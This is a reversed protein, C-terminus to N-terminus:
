KQEKLKMAVTQKIKNKLAQGGVEGELVMTQTLSTELVKGAQNDFYASGKAEQEKIQFAVPANEMAKLTMTPALGIKQVTKGERTEPGEYTNKNTVVMTGVQPMPIEMATNWSAGKRIAGEPLMLGGQSMMQQLRKESFMEKMQEAGPSAQLAERFKDSIKFDSTQGRPDMTMMFKAGVLARFVPMVLKGIPDEPDKTNQTDFESKGNPGGMTMRIRTVTQTIRAKGDKDVTGVDWTLDMVQGTEMPVQQGGVTFEMAMKQDTAYDLKQGEQFKYRLTVEEQGRVPSAALGVCVALCAFVHRGVSM